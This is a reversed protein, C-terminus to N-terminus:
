EPVVLSTLRIRTASKGSTRRQPDHPSLIHRNGNHLLFQLAKPESSWQEIITNSMMTAESSRTCTLYKYLASDIYGRNLVEVLEYM